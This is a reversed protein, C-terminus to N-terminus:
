GRGSGSGARDEEEEALSYSEWRTCSNSAWQLEPNPQSRGRQHIVMVKGLSPGKASFCRFDILSQSVPVSALLDTLTM